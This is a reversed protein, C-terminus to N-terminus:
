PTYTLRHTSGIRPLNAIGKGLASLLCVLSKLQGTPLAVHAGVLMHGDLSLPPTTHILAHSQTLLCNRCRNM